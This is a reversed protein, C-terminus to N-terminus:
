SEVAPPDMSEVVVLGERQQEAVLHITELSARAATCPRGWRARVRESAETLAAEAREVFEAVAYSRGVELHDHVVLSPSYTELTHGDPWRTTFRLEPM